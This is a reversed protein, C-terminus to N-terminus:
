HFKNVYACKMKARKIKSKFHDYQWIKLLTLLLQMDLIAKIFLESQAVHLNM